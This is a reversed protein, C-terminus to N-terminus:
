TRQSYTGLYTGCPRSVVATSGGGSHGPGGCTPGARAARRGPRRGLRDPRPCSPPGSGALPSAGGGHRGSVGGPRLTLLSETNPPEADFVVRKWGLQWGFWTPVGICDDRTAQAADLPMWSYRGLVAQSGGDGDAELYLARLDAPLPRGLHREAVALQEETVPASMQPDAISHWQDKVSQWPLQVM